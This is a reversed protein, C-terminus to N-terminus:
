EMPKISGRGKQDKCTDAVSLRSRAGWGSTNATDDDLIGFCDIVALPKRVTVINGAETLYDHHPILVLAEVGKLM